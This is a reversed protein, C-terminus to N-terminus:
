TQYIKEPFQPNKLTWFCLLGPKPKDPCDIEYEGYGVALLDHNITNVDMCSVNRGETRNYEFKFLHKLKVSDGDEKAEEAAEREKRAKEEAEQDKQKRARM